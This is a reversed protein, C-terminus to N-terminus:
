GPPPIVGLQQMMGLQDFIEWHEVSKGNEFREIAIGTVSIQRDTPPIGLLEGQHTGHASWQYAVKNGEAVLNEVTTQLDPFANLFISAFQKVSELGPPMGPPLAHHMVNPAYFEDFAAMNHQTWGQEIFRRVAAKNEETSM